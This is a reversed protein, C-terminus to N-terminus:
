NASYKGTPTYNTDIRLSVKMLSKYTQMVMSYEFKNIRTVKQKLNEPIQSEFIVRM